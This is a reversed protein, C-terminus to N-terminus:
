EPKITNLRKEASRVRVSLNRPITLTSNKNKHLSNSNRKKPINVQTINTISIIEVIDDNLDQNFSPTKESHNEVSWKRKTQSSMDGSESDELSRFGSELKLEIEKNSFIDVYPSGVQIKVMKSPHTAEIKNSRSQSSFSGKMESQNDYEVTLTPLSILCKVNKDKSEETKNLNYNNITTFNNTITAYQSYDLKHGPVDSPLSISNKRNKYFKKLINQSRAIKNM